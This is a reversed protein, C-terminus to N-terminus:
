WRLTHVVGPNIQEAAVTSGGVTIFSNGTAIAGFGHLGTPLNPMAQWGSGGAVIVEVSSLVSFPPTLLEGGAVFLHTRSAAAAFGARAVALSPGARWTESAPDYIRVTANQTVPSRGAILWLEGQFAM